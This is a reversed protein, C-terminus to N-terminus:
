SHDNKSAIIIKLIGSLAETELDLVKKQFRNFFFIKGPSEAFLHFLQIFRLFFFTIEPQLLPGLSGRFLHLQFFTNPTNNAARLFAVLDHIHQFLIISELHILPKLDYQDYWGLIIGALFCFLIKM